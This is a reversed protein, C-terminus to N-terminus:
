ELKLNEVLGAAFWLQLCLLASPRALPLLLLRMHSWHFPAFPDSALMWTRASAYIFITFLSPRLNRVFHGGIKDHLHLTSKTSLQHPHLPRM